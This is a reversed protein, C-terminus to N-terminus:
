TYDKFRFTKTPPNGYAGIGDFCTENEHSYCRRKKAIYDEDLSQSACKRIM